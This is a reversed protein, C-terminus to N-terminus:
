YWLNRLHRETDRGGDVSRLDTHQKKAKAGTEVSPTDSVM